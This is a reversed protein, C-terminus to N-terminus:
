NNKLAEYTKKNVAIVGRVPKYIDQSIQETNILQGQENYSDRYLVVKLGKKAKIKIIKQNDILSEDVVYETDPPDYEALVVPRLKVIAEHENKKSIIKISLNGASIESVICITYDRNNKFKLDIYGQSITADQGPPVYNLTMSHHVRSTVQLRSLLVANYLTSAVQCVGGGTGSVVQNKMIIPAQMFGYETTRPGLALDMSFEEGPKLLYNNIKKCALEINHARSYNNINFNTSYTGIVDTLYKVDEISFSPEIVQVILQIDELNRNLLQTEILKSNFPVDLVKGDIHKTYNIKGYNYNYTSSKGLFDVEKKITKLKEIIRHRDYKGLVLLNIHNKELSKITKLREIINGERGIKYATSLALDFDFQYNISNLDIKWTKEQYLLSVEKKNIKNLLEAEINKRAQDITLGSVNVGEIYIGKYFYKYSLKKQASICFVVCALIFLCLFATILYYVTKKNKFKLNM